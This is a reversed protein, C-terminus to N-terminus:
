MADDPSHFDHQICEIVVIIVVVVAVIVVLIIIRYWAFTDSCHDMWVLSVTLRLYGWGWRGVCLSKNLSLSICLYVFSIGREECFSRVTGRTQANNDGFHGNFKPTKIVVSRLSRERGSEQRIREPSHTQTNGASTYVWDSTDTWEPQRCPITNDRSPRVTTEAFCLWWRNTKRGRGNTHSRGSCNSWVSGSPLCSDIEGKIRANHM